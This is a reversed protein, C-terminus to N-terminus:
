AAVAGPIARLGRRRDNRVRDLLGVLDGVGRQGAAALLEEVLEAVQEKLSKEQRECKLFLVLPAELLHGTRDM